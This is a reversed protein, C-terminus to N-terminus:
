KPGSNFHSLIPGTRVWWVLYPNMNIDKHTWLMISNQTWLTFREPGLWILMNPGHWGHVRTWNKGTQWKSGSHIWISTNILGYCTHFTPGYHYVNQAWLLSCNPGHWGHVRTRNKGTQGGWNKLESNSGTHIWTIVIHTWLPYANRKPDLLRM